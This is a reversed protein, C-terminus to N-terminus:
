ITKLKYKQVYIVLLNVSQNVHRSVCSTVISSTDSVDSLYLPAISSHKRCVVKRRKVDM